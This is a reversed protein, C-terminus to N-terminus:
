TPALLTLFRPQGRHANFSARVPDLATDLDVLAPPAPPAQRDCAAALGALVLALGVIRGRHNM